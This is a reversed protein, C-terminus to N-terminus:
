KKQIAFLTVSTVIKMEGGEDIDVSEDNDADGNIMDHSEDSKLFGKRDKATFISFSLLPEKLIFESVSVITTKEKEIDQSLHCIYM